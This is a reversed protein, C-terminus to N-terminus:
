PGLIASASNGGGWGMVWNVLNPTLSLILCSMLGGLAYTKPFRGIGTAVAIGVAIFGLFLRAIFILQDYASSGQTVVTAFPNTQGLASGPDLVAAAALVVGIAVAISAEGSRAVHQLEPASPRNEKMATSTGTPHFLSTM